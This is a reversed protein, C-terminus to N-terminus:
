QLHPALDEILVRGQPGSGHVTALDLGLKRALVRVSPAAKVAARSAPERPATPGNLDAAAPRKERAAAAVAQDPDAAVTAHRKDIAKEGKPQYSLIVAGIKVKQGEELNVREITGAFPAPVEMTAKDTLVELLNQGPRVTEGPKVLWRVTEAEYVGEGLEPLHFDM